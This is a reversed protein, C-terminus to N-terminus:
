PASGRETNCSIFRRPLLETVESIHMTRAAGLFAVIGALGAATIVALAAPWHGGVAPTMAQRVLLAVGGGIAASLGARVYTRLVRHGDIRGLRHRLLAALAVSGGLYSTVYSIALGVDREASPLLWAAVLATAVAEANAAVNVLAPTRTDHMAYFARLMIQFGSSPILALGFVILVTGALHVAGPTAHGHGFLVLAALPGLVIFGAATPALVTATSRLGHSLVATLRTDNEAAAREAMRPLLVTMAALTVVAYPVQFLTYANSFVGFAGKGSATALRTVVLFAVQNAIVYLAVWGALSAPRRGILSRAGRLDVLARWGIGCRRLSPALVATQLVSAM